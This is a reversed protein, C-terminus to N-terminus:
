NIETQTLKSAVYLIALLASTAPKVKLKQARLGVNTQMLVVAGVVTLRASEGKAPEVLPFVASEQSGMVLLTEMPGAAAVAAPIAEQAVIEVRAVAKAMVVLKSGRVVKVHTTVVM